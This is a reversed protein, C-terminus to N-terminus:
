VNNYVEETQFSWFSMPERMYITCWMSARFSEIKEVIMTMVGTDSKLKINDSIKVKGSKGIHQIKVFHSYVSFLM